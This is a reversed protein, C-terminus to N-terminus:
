QTTFSLHNPKGIHYGMGDQSDRMNGSLIAMQFSVTDLFEPRM